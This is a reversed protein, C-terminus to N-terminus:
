RKRLELLVRLFKVMSGSFSRECLLLATLFLEKQEEGLGRLKKRPDSCSGRRILPGKQGGETRREKEDRGLLLKVSYVTAPSDPLGNVPTSM